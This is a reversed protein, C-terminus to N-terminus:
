MRRLLPPPERPIEALEGAIAGVETRMGTAVVLGFGRGSAVMSGAFLMNLREALPAERPLLLSCEKDVPRSEGTLLSEDVRLAQSEVLRLDASVRTGSEVLLLDGPVM